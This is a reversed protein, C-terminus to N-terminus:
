EIMDLWASAAQSAADPLEPPPPPASPQVAPDTPTRACICRFAPVM